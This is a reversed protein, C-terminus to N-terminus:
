NTSGIVQAAAESVTATIAMLSALGIISLRGFKSTMHRM